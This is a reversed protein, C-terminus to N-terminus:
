KSHQLFPIQAITSQGILLRELQIRDEYLVGCIFCLGYTLEWFPVQKKLIELNNPHSFIEEKIRKQDIETLKSTKLNSEVQNLKVDIMVKTAMTNIFESFGDGIEFIARYKKNHLTLDFKGSTHAAKNRIERLSNLCDYMNKNILRFAFALKIKSSFTSLVGPYKFLENKNPKSYDIPLFAEILLQLHEEAKQTAVLIAGRTSEEFLTDVLDNLLNQIEPIEFPKFEKDM